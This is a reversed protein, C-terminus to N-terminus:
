EEGTKINQCLAEVRGRSMAAELADMREQIEGLFQDNKEREQCQQYETMRIVEAAYELGDARGICEQAESLNLNARHYRAREMELARKRM